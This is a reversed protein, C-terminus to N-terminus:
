QKLALIYKRQPRNFKRLFYDKVKDTSDYLFESLSTENKNANYSMGPLLPFFQIKELEYNSAM